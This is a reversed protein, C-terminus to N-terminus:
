TVATLLFLFQCILSAKAPITFFYKNLHMAFACDNITICWFRDIILGILRVWRFRCSAFRGFLDSFHRALYQVLLLLTCLPLDFTQANVCVKTCHVPIYCKYGSAARIRRVIHCCGGVERAAGFRSKGCGPEAHIVDASTADLRWRSSCVDTFKSFGLCPLYVEVPRPFIWARSCM